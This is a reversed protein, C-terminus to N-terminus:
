NCKILKNFELEFNPTFIDKGLNQSIEEMTWFRGFDLEKENTTIIGDYTTKFSYVLEKECNSEFIYEGMREPTFDSIGLEEMAERRLAIDINEGFDIHGGVATDWKNPQIDKWEPRKQLFLDGHTNFVHLHVVPHLMKSGDHAQARTIAGIINGNEDVQPFLENNNDSIVTM